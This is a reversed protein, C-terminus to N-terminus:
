WMVSLRARDYRLVTTADLQPTISNTNLFCIQKHVSQTRSNANLIFTCNLSPKVDAENDSSLGSVRRVTRAQDKRLAAEDDLIEFGSVRM